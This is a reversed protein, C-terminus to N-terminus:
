VLLMFFIGERISYSPTVDAPSGDFALGTTCVTSTLTPDTDADDNCKHGRRCYFQRICYFRKRNNNEKPAIPDQDIVVCTTLDGNDYCRKPEANFTARLYDRDFDDDSLLFGNLYGCQKLFTRDNTTKRFQWTVNVGRDHGDDGLECRDKHNSWDSSPYTANIAVISGSSGVIHTKLDIWKYFTGTYEYARTADVVMESITVEDESLVDWTEAAPVGTTPAPASWVDMRSSAATLSEASVGVLSLAALAESPSLHDDGNTDATRFIAEVKSRTSVITESRTAMSGGLRLEEPYSAELLLHGLSTM